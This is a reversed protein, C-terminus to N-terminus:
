WHDLTGCFLIKESSKLFQFPELLSQLCSMSCAKWGWSSHELIFSFLYDLHSNISRENKWSKVLELSLKNKNFAPVSPMKWVWLIDWLLWLSWYKICIKTRLHRTGWSRSDVYELFWGFIYWPDHSCEAHFLQYYYCYVNSDCPYFFSNYINMEDDLWCLCGLSLEMISM